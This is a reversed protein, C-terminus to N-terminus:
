NKFAAYMKLSDSSKVKSMDYAKKFYTDMNGCEKEPKSELLEPQKTPLEQTTPTNVFTIDPKVLVTEGNPKEVVLPAVVVSPNSVVPGQDTELITPQITM